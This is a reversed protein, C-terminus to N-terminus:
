QASLRQQWLRQAMDAADLEGLTELALAATSIVIGAAFEDVYEGAWLAALRAPDRHGDDLKRTAELAPDFRHEWSAGDRLGFAVIDKSPNREFEGGGGKIVTL